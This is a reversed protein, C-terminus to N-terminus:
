GMRFMINHITVNPFKKRLISLLKPKENQNLLSYLTSNKVKVFLCGDSFSVAKTMVALNSGIIGPWAALILDPRDRNVETIKSLVVPILDGLARTTVETGDYNRPTRRATKVVKLGKKKSCENYWL